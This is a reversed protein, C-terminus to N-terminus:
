PVDYSLPKNESADPPSITVCNLSYNLKGAALIYMGNIVEILVVGVSAMEKDSFIM